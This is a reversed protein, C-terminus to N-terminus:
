KENKRSRSFSRCEAEAFNLLRGSSYKLYRFNIYSFIYIVAGTKYKIRLDGKRFNPVSSTDTLNNNLIKQKQFIRLLQVTNIYITNSLVSVRRM